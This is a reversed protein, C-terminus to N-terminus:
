TDHRSQNAVISSTRCEYFDATLRDGDALATKASVLREAVATVRLSSALFVALQVDVIGVSVSDRDLIHERSGCPLESGLLLTM